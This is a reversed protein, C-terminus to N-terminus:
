PINKPQLLQLKQQFEVRGALFLRAGPYLIRQHFPLTRFFLIQIERRLNHAYGRFRTIKPHYLREEITVDLLTEKPNDITPKLRFDRYSKPTLLSLELPSGIGLKEFSM